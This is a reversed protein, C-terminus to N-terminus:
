GTYIDVKETTCMCMQACVCKEGCKHVYVDYVCKPFHDRSVQKKQEKRKLGGCAGGFPIKRERNVNGNTESREFHISHQNELFICMICM